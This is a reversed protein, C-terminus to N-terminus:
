APAADKRATSHLADTVLREEPHGDLWGEGSRLLAATEHEAPRCTGPADDPVPLLVHLHRLADTLRQEGELLLSVYPLRQGHPALPRTTVTWGLPAFLREPLDPGRHAPLVPVEVRLPRREDVLEPRGACRGQLASAFVNGLAVALSSSAAYPRDNVTGHAARGPELLLAATCREEGAEPFFVYATGHATSFRQVRGPDKHLLVGLDTAPRRSTGTTSITLFM